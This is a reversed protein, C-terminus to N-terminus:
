YLFELKVGDWFDEKPKHPVALSSVHKGTSTTLVASAVAAAAAAAAGLLQGRHLLLGPLQSRGRRRAGM